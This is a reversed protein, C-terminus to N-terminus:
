EDQILDAAGSGGAFAPEAFEAERAQIMQTAREIINANVDTVMDAMIEQVAHETPPCHLTIKDVDSPYVIVDRDEIDFFYAGNYFIKQTKQYLNPNWDLSNGAHESPSQVVGETAYPFYFDRLTGSAVGPLHSQGKLDIEVADTQSIPKQTGEKLRQLAQNELWSVHRDIIGRLMDDTVYSAFQSNTTPDGIEERLQDVTIIEPHKKQNRSM